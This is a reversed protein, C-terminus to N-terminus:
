FQMFNHNISSEKKKYVYSEFQLPNQKNTKRENPMEMGMLM